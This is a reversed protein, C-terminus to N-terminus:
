LTEHSYQTVELIERFITETQDKEQYNYTTKAVVGGEVIIEYNLCYTLTDGGHLITKSMTQTITIAEEGLVAERTKDYNDYCPKDYESQMKNIFTDSHALNLFEKYKVITFIDSNSTDFSDVNYIKTENILGRQLDVSLSYVGEAEITEEEFAEKHYTLVGDANCLVDDRNIIETERIKYNNKDLTINGGINNAGFDYLNNDINEKEVKNIYMDNSSIKTLVEDIESNTLIDGNNKGTSIIFDNLINNKDFNYDSQNLVPPVFPGPKIYSFDDGSSTGGSCGVLLFLAALISYKSNKQM